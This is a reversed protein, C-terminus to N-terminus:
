KMILDYIERKEPPFEAIVDPDDMAERFRKMFDEDKMYILWVLPTSFAMLMLYQDESQEIEQFSLKAFIRMIERSHDDWSAVTKKGIKRFLSQGEETPIRAVLQDFFLKM